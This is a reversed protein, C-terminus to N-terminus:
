YDTSREKWRAKPDDFYVSQPDFSESDFDDGIWEVMSDHNEHDQNKLAKLLGMYGFPGGCDEPPCARKGAICIPYKLESERQIVKEFIIEHEWDDGFDYVYVAITNEKTFYTKIICENESIMEADPYDDDPMGIRDEKGTFPNQINFEHLHYDVWGMSDQVAVHLDWFTYNEPVLIRRWILPKVHKLQIKFQFVKKYSMIPSWM